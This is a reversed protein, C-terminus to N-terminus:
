NSLQKDNSGFARETRSIDDNRTEIAVLNVECKEINYKANIPMFRRDALTEIIYIEDFSWNQNRVNITGNFIKSSTHKCRLRADATLGTLTGEYQDGDIFFCEEDSKDWNSMLNSVMYGGFSSSINLTDDEEKTEQTTNQASIYVDNSDEITISINDVTYVQGPKVLFIVKIDCKYGAIPKTSPEPLIVGRFKDLAVRAVDGVKLSEVKPSIFTTVTDRWIGFDDLFWQDDGQNLVVQLQLPDSDFNVIGPLNETSSITARFPDPFANYNPLRFVDGVNYGSGGSRITMSIVASGQTEFDVVGNVGSGTESIIPINTHIGNPYLAAPTNINFTKIVGNTTGEIPFGYQSPSFIFSFNIKKVLDKADIPLGNTLLSSGTSLLTFYAMGADPNSLKASNGSRGDLSIDTDYFGNEGYFGWYLFSGTSVLDLDGNPLINERKDSDYTIKSSKIGPVNTLLADELIFPYGGEGIRKAIVENSSTYNITGLTGPIQKYNFAGNFYDPIRRINWKGNAQYIRCQMSKLIGELIYANKKNEAEPQFSSFGEGRPSWRVGGVFVDQGEYVSCQLNNTWRVPLMVNLNSQSFLIQRIYNMPCRNPLGDVGPLNNHIYNMYQLFDLGCTAELSLVYADSKMPQQIGESLMYGVWYLVNNRQVEIRYTKDAANQLQNIDINNEFLVNLTLTSKIFVGFHDDTAGSYDLMMSQGGSGKLTTVLGTFSDSYVNARWSVNDYSKIPVTYQIAM